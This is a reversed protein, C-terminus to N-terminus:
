GAWAAVELPGCFPWQKAPRRLHGLAACFRAAALNGGAPALRIALSAGSSRGGPRAGRGAPGRAGRDGREM